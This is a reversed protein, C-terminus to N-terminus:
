DPQPAGTDLIIHEFARLSKIGQALFPKQCALIQHSGDWQAERGELLDVVFNVQNILRRDVM